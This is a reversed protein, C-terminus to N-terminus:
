CFWGTAVAPMPAATVAGEDCGGPRRFHLDQAATHSRTTVLWGSSFFASIRGFSAMSGAVFGSRAAFDPWSSGWRPFRRASVSVSPRSVRAHTACPSDALFTSSAPSHLKATIASSRQPIDGGVFPYAIRRDRSPVPIMHTPHCTHSGGVPVTSGLSHSPQGTRLTPPLCRTQDTSKRPLPQCNQLSM